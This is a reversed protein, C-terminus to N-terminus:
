RTRSCAWLDYYTTSGQLRYTEAFAERFEASFLHREPFRSPIDFAYANTLEFPARGRPVLWVQVKCARLADLTAEPIPLKSLGMDFMAGADVLDPNGALVLKPAFLALSDVTTDAGPTESYGMEVTEGPHTRLVEDLDANVANAYGRREVGIQWLDHTQSIAPVVLVLAYVAFGYRLATSAGGSSARNWFVVALYAAVIFGPNLHSRGAGLKSGTVIGGAVSVLLLTFLLWRQGSFRQAQGPEMRDVWLLLVVVPALLIVGAVFNMAFLKLALPHKSAEHIWEVYNRASVSHLGFPLLAVAPIACACGIALWRGYRQWLLYFPVLLYIVGTFKIDLALAGAVVFLGAAAWNRRLNVALFGLAVALALTADGRIMFTSMGKMMLSAAIFGLPILVEAGRLMTRFVLWLTAFLALNLVVMVLKLTAVSSGFLGMSLAYPAYCLPGYLLSYRSAADITTYLPEGRLWLASTSGVTSEVADIMTTLCASFGVCMGYLVLLLGGLGVWFRRGLWGAVRAPALREMVGFFLGLGICLPLVSFLLLHAM